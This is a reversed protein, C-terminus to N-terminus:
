VLPENCLMVNTFLDILYTILQSHPILLCTELLIRLGNQALSGWIAFGAASFLHGVFVLCKYVTTEWLHQDLSSWGETSSCSTYLRPFSSVSPLLRNLLHDCMLFPFSWIYQTICCLSTWCCILKEPMAVYTHTHHRM